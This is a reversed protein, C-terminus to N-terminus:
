KKTGAQARAQELANRVQPAVESDAPLGKLLDEWYRAAQRYNAKNYADIGLVWLAGVNLPDLRHLRQFLALAEPPPEQPNESVLFSAYEELIEPDDPALKLARAYAARADEPRQLVMYSRGLRAWGGPDDPNGALRKELRAVMAAPDPAGIGAGGAIVSLAAHHKGVYLGGAVLPLVLGLVALTARRARRSAREVPRGAPGLAELRRLVGALEAELRAREDAVVGAEISRDGAEIELEYLQGLLRARLQELQPYEEAGTEAGQGLPRVVLWVTAATLALALLILVTM